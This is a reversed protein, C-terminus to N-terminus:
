VQSFCSVCSNGDWIPYKTDFEACTQCILEGNNHIATKCKEVCTETMPDWITMSKHVEKCTLCVNIQNPLPATEPCEQVCEGLDRDYFEKAM